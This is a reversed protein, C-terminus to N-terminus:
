HRARQRAEELRQEGAIRLAHARYPRAAKDYPPVTMLIEAPVGIQAELDNVWVARPLGRIAAVSIASDALGLRQSLETPKIGLFFLWAGFPSLIAALILDEKKQASNKNSGVFLWFGTQNPFLRSGTQVPFLRFETRVFSPDETELLAQLSGNRDNVV